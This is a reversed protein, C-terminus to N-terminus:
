HVAKGADSLGHGTHCHRRGNSRGRNAGHRVSRLARRRQVSQDGLRSLHLSQPLEPRGPVCLRQHGCLPGRGALATGVARRIPALGAAFRGRLYTESSPEQQFAVTEEAGPPLGILDYYLRRLRTRPGAPPSPRLGRRELEALIFRDVDTTPWSEDDTKPPPADLPPQFAWHKAADVPPEPKPPGEESTRPDPAGMEIWREFNAIVEDPLKGDPPMELSEYRIAQILLSDKPKGAVLAPGSEGGARVGAASDLRLKAQLVSARASHCGYCREALVPRIRREFFDSEDSSLKRAAPGEAAPEAGIAPTAASLLPWLVVAWGLELHNM